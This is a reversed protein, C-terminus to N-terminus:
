KGYGLDDCQKITGKYADVARSIAQATDPNDARVAEIFGEVVYKCEPTFAYAVEAKRFKKCGTRKLYANLGEASKFTLTRKSVDSWVTLFERMAKVCKQGDTLEEAHAPTAAAITLAFTVFLLARTM